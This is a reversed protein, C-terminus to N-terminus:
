GDTRELLLRNSPVAVEPVGWIYEDHEDYVPVDLRMSEPDVFSEIVNRRAPMVMPSTTTAVIPSAGPLADQPEEPEMGQGEQGEDPPDQQGPPYENDATPILGDLAAQSDEVENADAGNGDAGNGDAGNAPGDPILGELAAESDEIDAPDAEAPDEEDAPPILGDLAAASDTQDDQPNAPTDDDDDDLVNIRPKKTKRIPESAVSQDGDDDLIGKCQDWATELNWHTLNDTRQLKADIERLPLGEYLGKHRSVRHYDGMTDSESIYMGPPVVSVHRMREMFTPEFKGSRMFRNPEVALSASGEVFKVNTSMWDLKLRMTDWTLYPAYDVSRAMNFVTVASRLITPRNDSDDFRKNAYSVSRLQHKADKSIVVLSVIFSTTGRQQQVVPIILASLKSVLLPIHDHLEQMIGQEIPVTYMALDTTIVSPIFGPLFCTAKMDNPNPWVCSLVAVDGFYQWMTLFVAENVPDKYAEELKVDSADETIVANMPLMGHMYTMERTVIHYAMDDDDGLIRTILDGLDKKTNDRVNIRDPHRAYPTRHVIETFYPPKSSIHAGIIISEGKKINRIARVFGTGDITCNVEPNVNMDDDFLERAHALLPNRSLVWVGANVDAPWPTKIHSAQLENRRLRQQLFVFTHTGTRAISGHIGTGIAVHRGHIYTIWQSPMLDWRTEVGLRSCTFRDNGIFSVVCSEGEPRITWAAPRMALMQIARDKSAVVYFDTRNDNAHAHARKRLGRLEGETANPFIKNYYDFIDDEDAMYWQKTKLGIRDNQVEVKVDLRREAAQEARQAKKLKKMFRKKQEARKAADEAAFKKKVENVVEINQVPDKDDEETGEPAIFDRDEENEEDDEDDDDGNEGEVQVTAILREANRKMIERQREEDDGERIEEFDSEEGGSADDNDAETTPEPTAGEATAPTPEPTAGDTTAPTAPTAGEATAPTAATSPTPTAEGEATAPTPTAEGEATAPTAPTAATSPTAAASPTAGSPDPTKGEPDAGGTLVRKGPLCLTGGQLEAYLRLLERRMRQDEAANWEARLRERREAHASYFPMIKKGAKPNFGEM